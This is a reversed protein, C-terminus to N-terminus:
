SVLATIAKALSADTNDQGIVKTVLKGGVSVQVLMDTPQLSAYVAAAGQMSDFASAPVDRGQTLALGNAADAVASAFAAGSVTSRRDAGGGVMGSSWVTGSLQRVAADPGDVPRSFTTIYDLEPGQNGVRPHMGLLIGQPSPTMYLSATTRIPAYQPLAPLDTTM